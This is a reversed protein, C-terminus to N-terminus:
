SPPKPVVLLGGAGKVRYSAINNHVMNSSTPPTPLEFSLQDEAGVAVQDIADAVLCAVAETEEATQAARRAEQTAIVKAVTNWSLELVRAIQAKSAGEAYMTIIKHDRDERITRRILDRTFNSTKRKASDGTNQYLGIAAQEEENIALETIVWQNTLRYRKVSATSMAQRLKDLPLPEKFGDNFALLREWAEAQDYDALLACYVAFCFRDRMEDGAGANRLARLKVLQQVRAAMASSGGHLVESDRAALPVYPQYSEKEQIGEVVSWSAKEWAKGANPNYDRPVYNELMKRLNYRESHLIQLRGKRGTKTNYTLPLRFLGAMRVSASRDIALGELEEPNDDLVHQLEDMLWAQMRKYWYQIKASAPELAWWLQAGRGSFVISNPAPCEETSWLDRSCRWILATMRDTASTVDAHCDIDIVINHLGFVDETVRRVGCVSNATIYYDVNKSIHMKPVFLSLEDINRRTLDFIGAGDKRHYGVFVRGRFCSDAPFHINLWSMIQKDIYNHNKQEQPWMVADM